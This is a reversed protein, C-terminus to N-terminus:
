GSPTVGVTGPVGVLVAAYVEFDESANANAFRVSIAKGGTDQGIPVQCRLDSATQFYQDPYTGSLLNVDTVSEANTSQYDTRTQVTLSWNGSRATWLYLMRPDMERLGSAPSFWGTQYYADIAAANDASTTDARYLKGDSESGTGFLVQDVDNADEVIAISEAAIGSFRYWEKFRTNYVLITDHTSGTSTFSFWVEDRAQLWAGCVYKIRSAVYGDITGQIKESVLSSAAGDFLRIGDEALYYVGHDTVVISRNSLTGPVHELQIIQQNGHVPHFVSGQIEYMTGRKSVYLRGRYVFMGTIWDGDDPNVDIFNFPPWERSNGATSYFLRSPFSSTRAMFLYGGFAWVYFAVPAAPSVNYREHVASANAGVAGGTFYLWYGDPSSGLIQRATGLTGASATWANTVRNYSRIVNSEAPTSDEGGAVYLLNDKASAGGANRRYATIATLSTWADSFPNYADHTTANNDPGTSIRGSVIHTAQSLVGGAAQRRATGIATKTSWTDSIPDYFYNTATWGAASASDNGTQVFGGSNSSQGPAQRRNATINAIAKWSDTALLYAEGTATFTSAASLGSSVYLIGLFSFGSSEDRALTSRTMTQWVDGLTDYKQTIGDYAGAATAGQAGVLVGARLNHLGSTLSQATTMATRAQVSGQNVLAGTGAVTGDSIQPTSVGNVAIIENNFVAFDWYDTASAGLGSALTTWAGSTPAVFLKEQTGVITYRTTTDRRAFASVGTIARTTAPMATANYTTFGSRKAIGGNRLKRVNSLDPSSPYVGAASATTDLGQMQIPFRIDAM